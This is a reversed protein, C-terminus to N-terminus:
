FDISEKSCELGQSKPYYSDPIEYNLCIGAVDLAHKCIGIDLKRGADVSPDDGDKCKMECEYMNFACEMAGVAQRLPWALRCIRICDVVFVLEIVPDIV